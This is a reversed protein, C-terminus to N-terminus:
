ISPSCNFIQSQLYIRAQTSLTHPLGRELNNKVYSVEPTAGTWLEELLLTIQCNERLHVRCAQWLLPSVGIENKVLAVNSASPGHYLRLHNPRQNLFMIWTSRRKRQKCAKTKGTHLYRKWWFRQKNALTTSHKGPQSHCGNETTM